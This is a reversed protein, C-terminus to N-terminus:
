AIKGMFALLLIAKRKAATRQLREPTERAM